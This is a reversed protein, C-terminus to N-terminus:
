HWVTLHGDGDSFLLREPGTVEAALDIMIEYHGLAIGVTREDITLSTVTHSIAECLQDRFGNENSRTTGGPTQIQLPCLVTLKPGDFALQIYDAVFSVASLRGGIILEPGCRQNGGPLKLEELARIAGGLANFASRAERGDNTALLDRRFAQGEQRYLSVLDALPRRLEIMSAMTAAAVLRDTYVDFLSAAASERGVLLRQTYQALKHRAGELTLGPDRV